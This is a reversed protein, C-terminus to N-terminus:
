ATAGPETWVWSTIQVPGGSSITTTNLNLDAGSTGCTGDIVANAESVTSGDASSYIRFWSATGGADASSDQVTPDVDFTLVGNSVTGCPDNMVIKALLTNGSLGTAVTNPRTGSYIVCLGAGAGADIADRLVTARSTRIATAYSLAM